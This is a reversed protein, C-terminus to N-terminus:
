LANPLCHFSKNNCNSFVKSLTDFFLDWEPVLDSKSLRNLNLEGRFGIDRFFQSLQSETPIDVFNDTPLNLSANFISEDVTYQTENITFSFSKFDRSVIATSCILNLVQTKLRPNLSFNSSVITNENLFKIWPRFKEVNCNLPNFSGVFNHKVIEFNAM